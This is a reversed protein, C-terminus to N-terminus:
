RLELGAIRELSKADLRAGPEFRITRLFHALWDGLFVIHAPASSAHLEFAVGLAHPELLHRRAAPCNGFPRLGVAAASEVLIFRAHQAFLHRLELATQRERGEADRHESRCQELVAVLFLLLLVNRLDHAALNAPALAIGLWAGAGIQRRELRAGVVLAIVVEHVARLDPRAIAVLGVPNETEDARIEARLLLLADAEQQEVHLRGPIEVRGIRSM